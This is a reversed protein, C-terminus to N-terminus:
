NPLSTPDFDCVNRPDDSMSPGSFVKGDLFSEYRLQEALREPTNSTKDEVVRSPSNGGEEEGLIGVCVLANIIQPEMNVADEENNVQSYATQLARAYSKLATRKKASDPYTQDIYAEIDKRIGNPGMSEDVPTAAPAPNSNGGGSCGPCVSLIVVTASFAFVALVSVIIKKKMAM